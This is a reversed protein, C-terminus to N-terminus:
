NKIIQASFEFELNQNSVFNSIPTEVEKFVDSGEIKEKLSLLSKRDKSVGKIIIRSEKIEINTLFINEPVISNLENLIAHINKSNKENRKVKAASSSLDTLIKRNDQAKKYLVGEEFSSINKKFEGRQFSIFGYCFWLFFIFIGMSFLAVSGAKIIVGAIRLNKIKEKEWDPLLNIKVM